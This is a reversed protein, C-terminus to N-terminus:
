SSRKVTRKGCHSRSCGPPGPDSCRRGALIRRWNSQSRRTCRTGKPHNRNNRSGDNLARQRCTTELIRATLGRARQTRRDAASAVGRLSDAQHTAGEQAPGTASDPNGNTNRLGTIKPAVNGRVRSVAGATRQARLAGVRLLRAARITRQKTAERRKM